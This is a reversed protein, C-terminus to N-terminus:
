PLLFNINFAWVDNKGTAVYIDGGTELKIGAGEYFTLNNVNVGPCFINDFPHALNSVCLKRYTNDAYTSTLNFYLWCVKGIKRATATHVTFGSVKDTYDLTGFDESTNLLNYAYNKANNEATNAKNSADIAANTSVTNVNSQVTNINVQLISVLVNVETTSLVSILARFDLASLTLVKGDSGTIVPLNNALGTNNVGVIKGASVGVRSNIVSNIEALLAIITQYDNTENDPLNNPTVSNRLMLKQFFLIIDGYLEEVIPTGDVEPSANANKNRIRGAPYDSSPADTNLINAIIRTM